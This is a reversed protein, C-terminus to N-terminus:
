VSTKHNFVNELSGKSHNLKNLKQRKGSFLKIYAGPALFCMYLRKYTSKFKFSRENASMHVGLSTPTSMHASTYTSTHASMQAGLSTHACM